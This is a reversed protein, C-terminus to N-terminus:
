YFWVYFDNYADCEFKFNKGGFTQTNYRKLVLRCTLTTGPTFTSYDAPTFVIQTSGAPVTKAVYNLSNGTPNLLCIAESYYNLGTLPIVYNKTKDLSDEVQIALSPPYVQFTDPNSYTFSPLTSSTLQFNRQTSFDVTGVSDYYMNITSNFGLTVGNATLTGQKSSSALIFSNSTVSLFGKFAYAPASPSGASWSIYREAQLQGNIVPATSTSGTTTSTPEPTNEKKKCSNLFVLIIVPIFFLRKM